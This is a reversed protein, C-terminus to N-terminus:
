RARSRPRRARGRHAPARLRRARPWSGATAAVLTLGALGLLKARADLRHVPSAPDGALGASELAHLGSMRRARRGASARRRRRRRARVRRAHRRLRRAANALRADHVGPFSTTPPPRMAAAPRRAIPSGAPRRRGEGPRRPLGLRVALARALAIAVALAAISPAACRERGRPAPDARVAAGRSPAGLRRDPRAPHGDAREGRRRHDGGRRPRHRRARVLMAPLVTGLPVTGSLALLVATAGAGAIM